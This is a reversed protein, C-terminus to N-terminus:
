GYVSKVNRLSDIVAHIDKVEGLTFEVARYDLQEQDGIREWKDDLIKLRKTLLEREAYETDNFRTTM